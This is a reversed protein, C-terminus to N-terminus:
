VSLSALLKAWTDHVGPRVEDLRAEVEAVLPDRGHVDILNIIDQLDLPGGAVLKLLILDSVRPVPM